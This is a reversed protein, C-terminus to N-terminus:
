DERVSVVVTPDVAGDDHYAVANKPYLACTSRMGCVMPEGLVQALARILARAQDLTLEFHHGGATVDLM